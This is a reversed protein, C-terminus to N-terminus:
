FSLYNYIYIYIYINYDAYFHLFLNLYEELWGATSERSYGSIHLIYNESEPGIAFSSYVAFIREGEYSELDVRLSYTRGDTTLGHIFENGQLLLM